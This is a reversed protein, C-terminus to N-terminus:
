GAGTIDTRDAPRTSALTQRVHDHWLGLAERMEDIYGFRNYVGAIGGLSGTTHNLLREVVHPPVKRKAMGTATTRRLDHLTWPAIEAHEDLRRKGKNFGIFSRDIEGRAPFVWTDHLRPLALLLDRAFTTIPITHARNSKTLEAPITWLGSAFDLDPWRMSAVEGRRQATLILLHVIPGMPWGVAAAARWVRALEDDTLVRDRSVQRAPKELGACPSSAIHGERVCWNFFARVCAFAHVAASPTGKALIEDLRARVDRRSITSVPRKAWHRDFDARLIRAAEKATSAKNRRNIHTAIYHELLEVFQSSPATEVMNGDTSEVRQPDHGKRLKALADNAADRAEALGISPYRSDVAACFPALEAARKPAV